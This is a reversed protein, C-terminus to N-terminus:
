KTTALYMECRIIRNEVERKLLDDKILDTRLADRLRGIASILYGRTPTIGEPTEESDGGQLIALFSEPSLSLIYAIDYELGPHEEHVSPHKTKELALRRLLKEADVDTEEPSPVSEPKM